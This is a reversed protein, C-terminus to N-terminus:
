ANPMLTGPVSSLCNTRFTACQSECKSWHDSGPPAPALRATVIAPRLVGRTDVVSNKRLNHSARKTRTFAYDFASERFRKVDTPRGHSLSHETQLLFTKENRGTISFFNLQDNRRKPPFGCETQRM